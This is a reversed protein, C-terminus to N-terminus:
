SQSLFTKQIGSVQIHMHRRVEEKRRMGTPVVLSTQRSQPLGVFNASLTQVTNRRWLCDTNNNYKTGCISLLLELANKTM